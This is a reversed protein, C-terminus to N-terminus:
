LGLWRRWPSTPRPVNQISEALRQGVKPPVIVHSADHRMMEEVSSFERATTQQTQAEAQQQQEESSFKSQHKM